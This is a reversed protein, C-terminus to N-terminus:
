KVIYVLIGEKRLTQRKHEDETKLFVAIRGDFVRSREAYLTLCRARAILEEATANEGDLALLCEERPLLWVAVRSLIAYLGFVALLCLLLAILDNM